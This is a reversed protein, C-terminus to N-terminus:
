PTVPPTVIKPVHVVPSADPHTVRRAGGTSDFYRIPFTNSILRQGVGRTLRRLPDPGLPLTIPRGSDDYLLVDHLLKGSRSYPYINQVPRGDLQLGPAVQSLYV